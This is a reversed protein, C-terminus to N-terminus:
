QVDHAPDLGEYALMSALFVHQSSGLQAVAITKGKLDGIAQVQNTGFLEFCGVHVGALIVM